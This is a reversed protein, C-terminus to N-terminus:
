EIENQATLEPTQSIKFVSPKLSNTEKRNDFAHMRYIKRCEQVHRSTQFALLNISPSHKGGLFFFFFGFLCVFM